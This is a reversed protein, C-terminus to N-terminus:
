RRSEPHAKAVVEASVRAALRTVGVIIAKSSSTALTVADVSEPEAPGYTLLRELLGGSVAIDLYAPTESNDLVLIRVPRAQADLFVRVPVMGAYGKATVGASDSLVEYGLVWGSSDRIVRHPFPKSVSRASGATPFTKRVIDPLTDTDRATAPKAAPTEAYISEAAPPTVPTQVAL